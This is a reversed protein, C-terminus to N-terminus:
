DKSNICERAEAVVFLSGTIIIVDDKKAKSFALELAEEVSKTLFWEKGVFMKHVEQRPFSYSRPHKAKTLIVTESILKLPECTAEIDKDASVGLILIIKRQPFEDLLTKALVETSAPNHAGDLVVTPKEKVIEFRGQWRVKKLGEEIAQQGVGLIEAVAVACSANVMQHEGKLAVKLHKYEMPHVTHAQVGFEQCRKQLIEMAAEKQPALVVKQKSCKIIASKEQAIKKLTNGLIKTHDLSIPTIVAIKSDFANTADLRGGLGTEVVAFDVQEQAFYLGAIVTLVEFYTLVWGKNEIAAIAPHIKNILVTLQEDSICGVFDDAGHLNNKDLIRIRENVRHLHPSTYLGVKYGAQQLISAIMASTSGKGKTGAVHIVNLEKQPNGVSDLLKHVRDLYFDEPTIKHLQSEFNTLSHLYDLSSSM